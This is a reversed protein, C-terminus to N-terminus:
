PIFDALSTAHSLLYRFDVRYALTYKRAVNFIVLSINTFRENWNVCRAVIPVLFICWLSDHWVLLRVWQVTRDFLITEVRLSLVPHWVDGSAIWM